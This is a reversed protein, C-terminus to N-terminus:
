IDLKEEITKLRKELENIRDLLNKDILEQESKFYSNIHELRNEIISRIQKKLDEINDDTLVVRDKGINTISVFIGDDSVYKIISTYSKYKWNGVFTVNDDNM